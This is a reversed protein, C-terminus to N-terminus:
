RNSAPVHRSMRVRDVMLRQELDDKRETEEGRAEGERSERSARRRERARWSLVIRRTPIFTYSLTPSALNGHQYSLRFNTDLNRTNRVTLRGSARTSM